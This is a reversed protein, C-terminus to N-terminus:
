ENKNRRNILEIIKEHIIGNTIIAGDLDRDYRQKEGKFNTVKGGAEKVILASAALDCNAHKTGPFIEASIKGSAVMMSAHAVSGIESTKFDKQLEKLYELVDYKAGNWTCYDISSGLSGYEKNNVHIPKDNCFAGKGKIATYIEDLFPDYVLGVIPNGDYVLALSFVAIPIHRTFMSTGDIPDCVWVYDSKSNLKNEEGDVSHGPFKEKVKEILYDNIMKDAITVPTKDEKYEINIDKNFYERIIDGAYYAIEKAFSLYKEM